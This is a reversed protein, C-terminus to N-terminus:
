SHYKLGSPRFNKQNKIWKEDVPKMSEQVTPLLDQM